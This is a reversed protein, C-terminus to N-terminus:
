LERISLHILGSSSSRRFGFWNATGGEIKDVKKGIQGGMPFARGGVIYFATTSQQPGRMAKEIDTVPFPRKYFHFHFGLPEDIAGNSSQNVAAAADNEAQRSKNQRTNFERVWNSVKVFNFKM